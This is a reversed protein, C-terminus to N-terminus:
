SIRVWNKLPKHWFRPPYYIKGSSNAIAGVYSMSSRSMIFHSASAMSKWAEILDGGRHIEVEGPFFNKISEFKHGSIKIGKESHYTSYQNWKLEDKLIPKYHQDSEPADTLILLKYKQKNDVCIKSLVKIYYDEELMRSFNEGPSIHEIAIGRRIHAVIQNSKSISPKDISIIESAFRYISTRKEIIKYPNTIRV